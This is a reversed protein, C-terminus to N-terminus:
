EGIRTVAQTVSDSSAVDMVVPFCRSGDPDLERATEAVLDAQIDTVACHWDVELLAAAVARGIGRAAGTVVAVNPEASSM